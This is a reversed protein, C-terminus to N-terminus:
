RKRRSRGASGRYLAQYCDECVGFRHNWPLPAGCNSCRKEQLSQSDLIRTIQSSIERKAKLVEQLEEPHEFRDMYYFALDAVRFAEELAPMDDATTEGQPWELAIEEMTVRGEQLEAQFFMRWLRRLRSDEEDFPITIFRYILLKDDTARELEQCLAIERKLDSKRFGKQVPIDNWKKLIESLPAELSILQEPFGIVAERIDPVQLRMKSKIFRMGDFANYYGTDYLGYRGARGAIQQVEDAHLYRVSKGDYKSTQLFVVRQAPLNLGMGIADTAVVVQTEGELFKRAEEHRVDYPLAGYVISCKWGHRQLESAVAHVDKKTFVILADKEKVSYLSQFRQHDAVLPVQREHHIVEWTDGCATILTKLIEEAHAAACVHVEEAQIGLIASTWAGGRFPDSIMQAEDIVATYYFRTPDMMEVTSAQYLANEVELTEEGTRLRCPYGAANLSEYQEFALLRLPGLYIGGPSRKMAQMAHYTKGSNTPGIHLIFRRKMRRTAPYLDVYNDPISDLMNAQLHEILKLENQIESVMEAYRPNKSILSGIYELSYRRDLDGIIRDPIGAHELFVDARRYVYGSEDQELLAGLEPLLKGMETVLFKRMSVHRFILTNLYKQTIIRNRDALSQVYDKLEFRSRVGINAQQGIWLVGSSYQRQLKRDVSKYLEKYHAQLWDELELVAVQKKLASDGGGGRSRHTKKKKKKQEKENASM